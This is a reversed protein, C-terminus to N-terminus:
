FNASPRILTSCAAHRARLIVVDDARHLATIGAIVAGKARHLVTIVM